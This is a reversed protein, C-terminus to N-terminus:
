LSISTNGSSLRFPTSLYTSRDITLPRHDAKAPRRIEESGALLSGRSSLQVQSAFHNGPLLGIRGGNCTNEMQLISYDLDNAISARAYAM